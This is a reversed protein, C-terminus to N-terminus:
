DGWNLHKKILDSIIKNGTDNLHCVDTFINKDHCAEENLWSNADSFPIGCENCKTKLNSRYFEFKDKDSYYQMSHYIELDSQFIEKEMNTLKKNTWNIAPQLIFSIKCGLIDRIGAWTEIDNKFIETMLTLKEDFSMKQLKPHQSVKRSFIIKLITRMLYNKNYGSKIFNLANIKINLLDNEIHENYQRGAFDFIKEESFIGGYEPFYISGELSALSFNNVGSFIVINEVKPLFRKLTIFLILEQQSTAGRIGFNLCPIDKKNLFHSITSFDSTADVGFVTSSGILMNCSDYNNRITSLDIFQNNYDYQERLGFKDTNVSRSRYNSKNIFTVFPRFELTLENYERHQPYYKLRPHSPPNNM